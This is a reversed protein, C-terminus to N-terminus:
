GGLPSVACNWTCLRVLQKELLAKHKVGPDRRGVHLHYIVASRKRFYGHMRTETASIMVPVWGLYAPDSQAGIYSSSALVSVSGSQRAMFWPCLPELWALTLFSCGKRKCFRLQAILLSIWLMM